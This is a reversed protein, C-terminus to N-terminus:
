FDRADEISTKSFLSFWDYIDFNSESIFKVVFFLVNLYINVMDTALYFSHLPAFMLVYLGFLRLLFLVLYNFINLM